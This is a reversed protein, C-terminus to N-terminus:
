GSRAPPAQVTSSAIRGVFQPPDHIGSPSSENRPSRRRECLGRQRLFSLDFRGDDADSNAATVQQALYQLLRIRAHGGDAIGVRVRAIFREACRALVRGFGQSIVACYEIEFIDFGHEDRRRAVQVRRHRDGTQLGAFIHIAFLRKPDRRFLHFRDKAGRAAGLM